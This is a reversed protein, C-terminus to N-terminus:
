SKDAVKKPLDYEVYTQGAYTTKIDKMDNGYDIWAYKSKVVQVQNRPYAPPRWNATKYATFVHDPTLDKIGLEQEMYYVAVLTKEDNSSPAKEAIFDKFSKKGPPNLVLDGLMKPTSPTRSAKSSKGKGQNNKRPAKEVVPENTTGSVGLSAALLELAKQQAETSNFANVAEAMEPLRKLLEDFKDTM